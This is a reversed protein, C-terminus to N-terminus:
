IRTKRGRRHRKPVKSLQEALQECEKKVYGERKFTPRFPDFDKPPSGEKYFQTANKVMEEATGPEIIRRTRLDPPLMRDIGPTIDTHHATDFGIWWLESNLEPEDWKGSFTVGGHVELNEIRKDHYDKNYLPHGKPVGVYGNFTGTM